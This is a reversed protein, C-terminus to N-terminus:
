ETGGAWWVKDFIGKETPVNQSNTTMEGLAWPFRNIFGITANHPNKMEPFGTRRYDNYTETAERDYFAIYKQTIIEKLENDPTLRPEVQNTYYDDAGDAGVLAFAARIAEQLAPKYDGGTRFLAEAEIFKLEHYTCMLIPYQFAMWSCTFQSRAYVKPDQTQKAEGIPAIMTPDTSSFYRAMRNTDSRETMLNFITTSVSLHDRMYWFEGWPNAGPLDIVFGDLLMNDGSSEFGKAIFGLAETAANNDVNTLRLAYRAKLSYAAKIWAAKNDAASKYIYDKDTYTTTAREMNEIGETLLQQIKPYLESQKDYAPKLNDLGKCAETYPVEGWCDTAVALNYAMMIQAIARAYYNDKEDGNEPDTKNIITQAINMVDYLSNWSNNMLSSNDQAVRHDAQYSQNWTGANHEIYVSAYWAIDTGTTEFGSKLLLDPLLNKADMYEANNQNKNVEDMIDQSCSFLLFPLLLILFIKKM